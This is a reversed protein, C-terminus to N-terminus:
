GITFTALMSMVDDSHDVEEMLSTSYTVIYAVGDAEIIFQETFVIGLAVLAEATYSIFAANRGNITLDTLIEGFEIGELYTGLHEVTLELYEEFSMDQLHGIAVNINSGSMGPAYLLENEGVNIVTWGDAIEMSWNDGEFLGDNGNDGGNTDTDPVEPATTEPPSTTEQPETEPEPETRDKCATIGVIMLLVMMLVLLKKMKGYRKRITLNPVKWFTGVCNYGDDDYFAIFIKRIM